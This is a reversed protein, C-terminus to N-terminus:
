LLALYLNDGLYKNAKTGPHAVSRAYVIRTGSSFRLVQRRNPVILHMPSGEHHILSYNVKTGVAWYPGIGDRTRRSHISKMLNNTKKGVQARAARQVALARRRMDLDVAGGAGRLMHDMSKNFKVVVAM